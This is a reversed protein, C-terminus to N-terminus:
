ILIKILEQINLSFCTITQIYLISVISSFLSLVYLLTGPHSDLSCHHLRLVPHVHEILHTVRAGQMYIQFRISAVASSTQGLYLLHMDQLDSM